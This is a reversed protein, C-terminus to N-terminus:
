KENTGLFGDRELKERIAIKAFEGAKLNYENMYKKIAESEKIEKKSYRFAIQLLDKKYKYQVDKNYNNKKIEEKKLEESM